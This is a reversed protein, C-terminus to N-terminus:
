GASRDNDGRGPGHPEEPRDPWLERFCFWQHPARRIAWELNSAIKGVAEEFDRARDSTTAVRIPERLVLRSRLRGERLVFVPLIPVGAARALAVPGSPLQMPRGFLTATLPREGSRPRDGQLAVIEGRRLAALLELGLSPDHPGAFHVELGEFGRERIIREVFAQAEPDMEMERVLHVPRAAKQSPISSGVEWNGVHATLLV